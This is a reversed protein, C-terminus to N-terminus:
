PIAFPWLTDLVILSKSLGFREAFFFRELLKYDSKKQIPCNIYMLFLMFSFELLFGFLFVSMSGSVVFGIRVRTLSFTSSKICYFYLFLHVFPVSTVFLFFTIQCSFCELHDLSFSLRHLPMSSFLLPLFTWTLSQRDWQPNASSSIWVPTIQARLCSPTETEHLPRSTFLAKQFLCRPHKIPERERRPVVM